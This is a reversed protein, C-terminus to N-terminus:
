WFGGCSCCGDSFVHFRSADRCVIRRNEVKSLVATARHCDDCVRLNKAIRIVTGPATNVLAFAIALKESHGCLLNEKEVDSVHHVLCNQDPVYGGAKMKVLVEELKEVVGKHRSWDGAKFSHVNGAEDTWWSLGPKKWARFNNKMILVQSQEEWMGARGYIDAMSMYVAADQEDIRLLSEFALRGVGVSTFKKAAALITKWTVQDAEFPMEHVLKVASDLHNARGLMDIMCHYHKMERRIGLKLTMVEFFDLGSEVLGAHSCATLVSLLTVGNPQVDAERMSHFLDFVKTADGLHSYGAILSSWTIVTRARGPMSHFVLEAESMSGCKGYFDVLCNALFMDKQLERRSVIEAHLKRGTELAALNGCVMLAAAFARADPQTPAMRSFLRLAVESEGNEAYGLMLSTWSVVNRQQHQISDFVKRAQIMNRCKSYMEVLSNAVFINTAVGSEAAQSHLVSGKEELSQILASSAADEGRAAAAALSSCATLAAVFTRAEPAVGIMRSFLELALEGSGTETYGFLLSNWSVVDHLPMRDFVMRADVMSGCKAYMAVLSNGLFTTSSDIMSSAARAHIRMGLELSRPKVVVTKPDETGQGHETDAMTSCATIAAVYTRSDPQISEDHFFLELAKHGDGNDAYGLIVANLLALDHCPLKDFLSRADAMTGCRAYMDIVSSAAVIGCDLDRLAKCARLAAIWLPIPSSDHLLAATITSRVAIWIAQDLPNSQRTVLCRPIAM